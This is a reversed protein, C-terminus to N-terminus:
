RAHMCVCSRVVASLPAVGLLFLMVGVGCVALARQDDESVVGINVNWVYGYGGRRCWLHVVVCWLCSHVHMDAAAGAPSASAGFSGCYLLPEAAGPPGPQALLEAALVQFSGSPFM